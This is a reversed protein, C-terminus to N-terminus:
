SQWEQATRSRSIGEAVARLLEEPEANGATHTPKPKDNDWQKRRKAWNRLTLNASINKKLLPEYNHMERLLDCLFHTDFDTRLSIFQAETFPERMKAVRPANDLIWQQFKIFSQSLNDSVGKPPIINSEVKTSSLIPPNNIEKNLHTGFPTGNQTGFSEAVVKNDVRKTDRLTDWGSDWMNHTKLEQIFREVSSKSWDWASALHRVSISHPRNLLYLLAEAKSYKRPKQWEESEFFKKPFKIFSYTM